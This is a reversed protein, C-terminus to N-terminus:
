ANKEREKKKFNTCACLCHIFLCVFSNVEHVFLYAYPVCRALLLSFPFLCDSFIFRLYFILSFLNRSSQLSFLFFIVSSFFAFRNLPLHHVGIQEVKKNNINILLCVCSDFCRNTVLLSPLYIRCMWVFCKSLSLIRLRLHNRISIGVCSIDFRKSVDVFGLVFANKAYNNNSDIFIYRMGASLSFYVCVFLWLIVPLTQQGSVTVDFQFLKFVSHAIFFSQFSSLFVGRVSNVVYTFPAKLANTKRFLFKNIQFWQKRRTHVVKWAGTACMDFLIWRVMKKEREKESDRERKLEYQRPEWPSDVVKPFAFLSFAGRCKYKIRFHTNWIGTITAFLSNHLVHFSFFPYDCQNEIIINYGTALCQVSM